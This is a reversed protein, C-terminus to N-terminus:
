PVISSRSSVSVVLGPQDPPLDLQMCADQESHLRLFRRTYKVEVTYSYQAVELRAYSRLFDPTFPREDLQVSLVLLPGMWAFCLGENMESSCVVLGKHDHSQNIGTGMTM